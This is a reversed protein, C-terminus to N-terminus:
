CGRVEHKKGELYVVGRVEYVGIDDEDEEQQEEQEAPAEEAARKSYSGGGGDGRDGGGGPARGQGGPGRSPPPPPRGGRPPPPPPAGGSGGAVDQAFKAHAAEDIQRLQDQLERESQAAEHKAKRQQKFTEEVRDKHKRGQEHHKISQSSGGATLVAVLAPQAPAPRWGVCWSTARCGCM